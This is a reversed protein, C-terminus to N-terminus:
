DDQEYWATFSDRLQQESLKGYPIQKVRQGTSRDVYGWVGTPMLLFPTFGPWQVPDIGPPFAFGTPPLLSMLRAQQEARTLSPWAAYLVDLGEFLRDWRRAVDDLEAIPEDQKAIPQFTWGRPPKIEPDQQRMALEQSFCLRLLELTTREVQWSFAKPKFVRIRKKIADIVYGYCADARVITEAWGMTEFAPAQHLVKKSRNLITNINSPYGDGGFSFLHTKEPTILIVNASTSM